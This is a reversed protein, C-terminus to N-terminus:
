SAYNKLEEVSINDAPVLKFHREQVISVEDGDFTLEFLAIENTSLFQASVPRVKCGEYKQERSCYIHDQITQIAGIQDSGGKAQVPIVHQAGNSDLGIYLEDIEIQGYNSIKTRLHNQLSYATVGLFIDVLRNCRLIALLAQEDSLAYKSIIEPTSDPLKKALLGNTPKIYVLKNLRVRYKADGAGLILWGLNTPQTELIEKPLFRRYRYSYIVDGPNKVRKIGLKDAAEHIEERDFVFETTGKKWHNFFIEVIIREYSGPKKEKKAKKPM